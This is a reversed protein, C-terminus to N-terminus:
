KFIEPHILVKGVHQRRRICKRVWGLGGSWPTVCPICEQPPDRYRFGGVSTCFFFFSAMRKFIIVVVTGVHFAGPYSFFCEDPRAVSAVSARGCVRSDVLSLTRWHCLIHRRPHNNRRARQNQLPDAPVM